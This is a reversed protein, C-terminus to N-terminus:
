MIWNLELPSHSDQTQQSHSCKSVPINIRDRLSSSVTKVAALVSHDWGKSLNSFNFFGVLYNEFSSHRKGLLLRPPPYQHPKVDITSCGGTAPHAWYFRAAIWCGHCWWCCSLYKRNYFVFRVGRMWFAQPDLRCETNNFINWIDHSASIKLEIEHRIM